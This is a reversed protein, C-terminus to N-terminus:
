VLCRKLALIFKKNIRNNKFAVRFFKNTLGTKNRMARIYFGKKLLKKELDISSYNNLLECLVFNAKSDYVRLGEIQSLEKIFITREKILMKKQNDYYKKYKPLRELFFTAFSNINWEPLNSQIKKIISKNKTALFGLRLGPCNYLKGQSKIVVLNHYKKLLKLASEPRVSSFDIFSEDVILLDLWKLKSFLFEIKKLPTLTGTPNNPSIILVANSGAKRVHGAFDSIDIHFEKRKDLYYYDIKKGNRIATSEYESFTPVPITIKKVFHQALLTILETSGKGLVRCFM